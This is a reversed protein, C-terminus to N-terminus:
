SNPAAAVVAPERSLQQKSDAIPATLTADSQLAPHQQVVTVVAAFAEHQKDRWPQMWTALVATRQNRLQVMDDSPSAPLPPVAKLMRTTMAAYIAGKAHQAVVVLRANDTAIAQDLLAFSRAMGDDLAAISDQSDILDQTARLADNALCEALTVRASLAFQVRPNNAQRAVGACAKPIIEVDIAPLRTASTVLPAAEAASALLM